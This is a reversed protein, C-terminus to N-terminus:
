AEIQNVREARKGGIGALTVGRGVRNDGAGALCRAETQALGGTRGPRPRSDTRGLTIPNRSHARLGRRKTRTGCLLSPDPDLSGASITASIVPSQLAAIIRNSPGSADVCVLFLQSMSTMDLGDRSM